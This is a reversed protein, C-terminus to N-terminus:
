QEKLAIKLLERLIESKREDSINARNLFEKLKKDVEELLASRHGDSMNPSGNFSETSGTIAM